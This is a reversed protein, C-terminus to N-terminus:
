KCYEYPRDSYKKSYKPKFVRANNDSSEAWISM